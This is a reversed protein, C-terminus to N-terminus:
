QPAGYGFPVGRSRRDHLLARVDGAVYSAGPWGVALLQLVALANLTLIYAYRTDVGMSHSRWFGYHAVLQAIYSFCLAFGWLSKRTTYWYASVMLGGLDIVSLWIMNGMGDPPVAIRCIFSLGLIVMLLQAAGLVDGFRKFDRWGCYASLALVIATAIFFAAFVM